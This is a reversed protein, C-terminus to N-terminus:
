SDGSDGSEGSDGSDGPEGSEDSEGFETCNFKLKFLTSHIVSRRRNKIRAAPCRNIYNDPPRRKGGVLTQAAESLSM